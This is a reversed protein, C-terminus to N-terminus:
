GAGGYLQSLHATQSRPAAAAHRCNDALGRRRGCAFKAAGTVLNPGLVARFWITEVTAHDSLNRALSYSCSLSGQDGDDYALNHRWGRQRRWSWQRIPATLSIRRGAGQRPSRSRRHLLRRARTRPLALACLPSRGIRGRCLRRRCRRRPSFCAHVGSCGKTGATLPARVDTVVAGDLRSSM